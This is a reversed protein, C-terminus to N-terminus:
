RMKIIKETRIWAGDATALHLMYVGTAYSSVDIVDESAVQALVKGEITTITIQLKVPSQIFVKDTAPNPFVNIRAIWAPLAEVSVNSVTYVDSTDTCGHENETIVRYDGNETVTISATNAGPLPQDNLLWQYSAYTGVTGLTFNDVTIVAPNAPFVYVPFQALESTDNCRVVQVGIVGSQQDATIDITNTSSEGNWGAPLTWIYADADSVEAVSYAAVSERCISDTGEVQLLSVPPEFCFKTLFGAWAITGPYTSTHSGPTAIGEMSNTMGALYLYGERDVVSATVGDIGTGGYYSGYVRTGSGNFRALFGDGYAMGGAFTSQLASTSAIDSTSNTTGHLYIIHTDAIHLSPFMEDGTGGYYTAWQRVGLSDFKALYIDMGGGFQSQHAASSSLGSASYSAGTIYVNGEPDCAVNRSSHHSLEQDPGGYYTAWQRVGDKNFKALFHDENDNAYTYVTKHAGPTALGSESVTNGFLYVNSNNDCALFGLGEGGNGGFYTGWQRVGELNFKALFTSGTSPLISQFAGPTAIGTTSTTSSSLFFYGDKVVIQSVSGESEDGGYYSSFIRTGASDFKAFFADQQGGFVPQHSGPTAIATTSSTRGAIYINGLSDCSFSHVWDTEEGGYYTAWLLNGDANFKQLFGDGAGVYTVQHSGTTAINDTSTTMGGVYVDTGLGVGLTGIDEYIGSGGIYTAWSITPDITLKGQYAATNFGLVDKTLVFASSVTAGGEQFSYPAAESISGFPTTATFSGDEHLTLHTAGEFQMRIDAVNGGPHVVFDQELKGNKIYLEWDIYPYVDKYVLKQYSHATAGGTGFQPVYYQEVYVQRGEMELVGEKRAGLLQVDMRYIDTTADAPQPKRDLGGLQDIDFTASPAAWQYHIHGHGIFVQVSGSSLRFDIDPRAQGYQDTIQGKNELFGLHGAKQVSVAVPQATAVINITLVAIASLLLSKM